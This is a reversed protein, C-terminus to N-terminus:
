AARRRRRVLGAAGGVASTVVITAAGVISAWFAPELPGPAAPRRGDIAEFASTGGLLAMRGFPLVTAEVRAQVETAPVTGGDTELHVRSDLSGLRNDGLLFLRGPPVEVSFSAGQAGTGALYPEDVPKGNVTLRRDGEGVAVTDGGVAVVRKVMLEGGWARDRFVVVDGRGVDSGDSKRALVTDQAQLTPAMSATPISYPRYSVAIVAFGGILLALGLGLLVGQVVAAPRRRRRAAAPPSDASREVVSSM